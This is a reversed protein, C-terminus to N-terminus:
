APRVRRDNGISKVGSIAITHDGLHASSSALWMKAMAMHTHRENLQATKPRIRPITESARFGPALASKQRNDVSDPGSGLRPPGTVLFRPSSNSRGAASEAASLGSDVKMSRTCDAGDGEATLRQNCLVPLQVLDRPVTGHCCRTGFEGFSRKWFILKALFPTTDM